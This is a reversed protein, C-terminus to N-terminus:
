FINLIKYVVGNMEFTDNKKGSKIKGGIPSAISIAFYDSKKFTLKGIPVSVYFNGKDTVVLSGSQVSKSVFSPDTKELLKKLELAENLQHATKEQELQAMARGTEHKDGASSKTDDNASEKASDFASQANSIRKEVAALCLSYLEQKLTLEM